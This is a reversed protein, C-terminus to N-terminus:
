SQWVPTFGRSSCDMSAVAYKSPTVQSTVRVDATPILIDTLIM